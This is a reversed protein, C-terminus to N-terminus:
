HAPPEVRTRRYERVREVAVWGPVAALLLFGVALIISWASGVTVFFVAAILFILARGVWEIPYKDPPSTGVFSRYIKGRPIEDNLEDDWSWSDAARHVGLLVRAIRERVRSM